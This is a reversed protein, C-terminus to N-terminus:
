ENWPLMLRTSDNLLETSEIVKQYETEIKANPKILFIERGDKLTIRTFDGYISETSISQIQYKLILRGIGLLKASNTQLGNISSIEVADLKMAGYKYDMNRFSIVGYNVITDEDINTEVKYFDKIQKEKFDLLGNFTSDKVLSYHLNKDIKIYTRKKTNDITLSDTNLYELAWLQALDHETFSNFDIKEEIESLDEVEKKTPLNIYVTFIIIGMLLLIGIASSVEKSSYNM